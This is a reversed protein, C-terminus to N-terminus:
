KMSLYLSLMILCAIYLNELTLGLTMDNLLSSDMHFAYSTQVEPWRWVNQGMRWRQCGGIETDSNVNKGVLSPTTVMEWYVYM